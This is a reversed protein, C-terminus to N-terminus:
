PTKTAAEPSLCFDAFRRLIQGGYASRRRAALIDDVRLGESEIDARRETLYYGIIEEDMEPHFQVGWTTPSFRLAAHPDLDTQCLVEAGPPLEVVSDLHTMVITPEHGPIDLLYDRARLKLPVTGIERGKPNPAVKGGLAEGLLQHGFCIGLTPVGQEHAIRLAEMTRLMWDEQDGVRAASGSVIIGSYSRPDQYSMASQCLVNEFGGPYDVGTAETIM